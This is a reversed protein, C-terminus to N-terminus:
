PSAMRALRRKLWWVAVPDYPKMVAAETLKHIRKELRRRAVTKDGVGSRKWWECIGDLVGRRGDKIFPMNLNLDENLQRCFDEDTSGITGDVGYKIRSEVSHDPDAPNWRLDRDAKRTDCHQHERGNGEGGMCAGLMNKYNLQEGPYRSVCRWHEIKMRGEESSIRGMCYCCLRRQETVLAVRLGRKDEYSSYSSDFTQRHETLKRPEKEKRILRM